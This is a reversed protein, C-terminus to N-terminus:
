FFSIILAIISIIVSLFALRFSYRIIPDSHKAYFGIRNLQSAKTIRFNCIDYLKVDFFDRLNEDLLIWSDTNRVVGGKYHEKFREKDRPSIKKQQNARFRELDKPSLTRLWVSKHKNNLGLKVINHKYQQLNHKIIVNKPIRIVDKFVDEDRAQHIQLTVDTKVEPSEIEIKGWELEEMERVWM